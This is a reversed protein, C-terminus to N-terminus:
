KSFFVKKPYKSAHTTILQMLYQNSKYPTVHEKLESVATFGVDTTIYGMGYFHGKEVWICSREEAVRGKDIIAFSKRNSSLFAIAKEIQSNHHLVDPLNATDRKQFGEGQTTPGYLCFRYDIEFQQALSRLLNEWREL